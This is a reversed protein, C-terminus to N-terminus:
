RVMVTKFVLKSGQTCCARHHCGDRAELSPRISRAHRASTSYVRCQATM